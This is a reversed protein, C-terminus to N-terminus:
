EKFQEMSGVFGSGFHIQLDYIMGNFPVYTFEKAGVRLRAFDVIPFHVVDTFEIREIKDELEGFVM